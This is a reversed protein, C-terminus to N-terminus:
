SRPRVGLSQLVTVIEHMDIPKSVHGDMGAERTQERDEQMANATMAVIPIHRYRAPRSAEPAADTTEGAEARSKEIERIKRTAELGDMVPMRVDMFVLDYDGKEFAAVAQQGDAVIDLQMGVDELLVLAIEQNIENDEALLVKLGSFDANALDDRAETADESKENYKGLKVVFTFTSGKGYDSQVSVGGGMTEALRRSISLGLGTGGYKRATSADAQTFPNFLAETQEPTMGIGTDTVSCVLCIVEASGAAADAADAAAADPITATDPADAAAADPTTAADAAADAAALADQDVDATVVISGESTFKAANGVLNLLIQALKQEDGVVMQPVREAVEIRLAVLSADIRSSMLDSISHFINRVVFPRNELELMGAEIKSFDLIDNIIGLLLTASAEVKGLYEIRKEESTTSLALQTMGLVGNMPTRIEHSMSSLFERQAQNAAEAKVLADHEKRAAAAHEAMDNISQVIKSFENKVPPIRYSPDRDMREVNHRLLDVARISLRSFFVMAILCIVYVAGLILMLMLTMDNYHQEVANTLENAWAYGIVKGDRAIPHMANMINGRVMTGYRVAETNSAMVERGPHDDPIPTGVSVSMEAAPSYVVIADLARDYYGLGLGPYVAAIMETDVSLVENLVAIQEERSANAAGKAALIDEYGHEGLLADLQRTIGLLKSGKEDYLISQNLSNIILLSFVATVTM